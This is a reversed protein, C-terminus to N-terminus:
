GFHSQPMIGIDAALHCIPVCLDSLLLVRSETTILQMCLYGIPDYKIPPCMKKAPALNKKAM